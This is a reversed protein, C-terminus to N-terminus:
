VKYCTEKQSFPERSLVFLVTNITSCPVLGIVRITKMCFSLYFTFTVACKFDVFMFFGYCLMVFIINIFGIIITGQHASGAKTHFHEWLMPYQSVELDASPPYQNTSSESSLYKLTFHMDLLLTDLKDKKMIMERFFLLANQKIDVTSINLM